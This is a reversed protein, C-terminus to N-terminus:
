QLYSYSSATAFTEDLACPDFTERPTYKPWYQWSVVSWHHKRTRRQMALFRWDGIGVVGRRTAARCLRSMRTKPHQQQPTEEPGRGRSSMSLSRLSPGVSISGISDITANWHTNRIDLWSSFLVVLVV